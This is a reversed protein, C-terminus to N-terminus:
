SLFSKNTHKTITSSVKILEAEIVLSYLLPMKIIGSVQIMILKNIKWRMSRRTCRRMEKM